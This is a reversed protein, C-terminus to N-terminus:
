ISINKLFVEDKPDVKVNAKAGGQFNKLIVGGLVRLLLSSAPWEPLTLTTLLDEVFNGLIPRYDNDADRGTCRHMFKTIFVSACQLAAEYSNSEVGSADSDDM